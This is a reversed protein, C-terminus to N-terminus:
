PRPEVGAPADLGTLLDDQVPEGPARLFADAPEGEAGVRWRGVQEAQEVPGRHRPAATKTPSGWSPGGGAAKSSCMM